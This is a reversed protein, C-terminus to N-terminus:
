RHYGVLWASFCSSEPATAESEAKIELPATIRSLNIIPFTVEILSCWRRGSTLHSSSPGRDSLCKSLSTRAVVVVAVIRRRSLLQGSMHSNVQSLLKRMDATVGDVIM